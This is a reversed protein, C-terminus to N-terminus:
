EVVIRAEKILHFEVRRNLYMNEETDNPMVPKRKGMSKVSIRQAEIGFRMLLDAVENARSMGLENNFTDNGINDTHGVLLVKYNENFKLFDSLNAIVDAFSSSVKMEAFDFLVNPIQVLSDATPFLSIKLTDINALRSGTFDILTEYSEYEEAIISVNFSTFPLEVYSFGQTNTQLERTKSEKDVLVIKANSIPIFRKADTIKFVLPKRSKPQIHEPLSIRYLNSNLNVRENSAFYAYKGDSTIKFHADWGPSNISKGLNLPKTWNTWTDDLRRSMFIDADGLGDHGYSSFFLTVGDYTIYPSLEEFETNIMPGLNIPESFVWEAIEFSVYVDTGGYSDEREITLLLTRTDFCMYFGNVDNLNYYNVIEITEPYAWHGSDKYTFSLGQLSDKLHEYITGLVLTDGCKSVGCVFNNLDNNLPQGLNLAKSWEGNDDIDSYWIDDRGYNLINYSRCFYLRKMDNTLIPVIDNYISNINDGLDEKPESFSKNIICIM